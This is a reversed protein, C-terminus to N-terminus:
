PAKGTGEAADRAEVVQAIRRQTLECEWHDEGYTGKFIALARNLEGLAEDFRELRHLAGARGRRQYGIRWHDEPMATLAAEISAAWVQEAEHAKGARLLVSALNHNSALTNAHTPGFAARTGANEERIVPEAEDLRGTSLLLGGLVNMAFLRQMSSAPLREIADRLIPEAEDYRGLVQLADAHLVRASLTLEDGEGLAASALSAVEHAEKLVDEWQALDARVTARDLRAQLTSRASEGYLAAQQDVSRTQYDLAQELRGLNQYMVGIHGSLEARVYPRDHFQEEFTAAGRDVAEVVTLDHEGDGASKIMDILFDKVAMAQGRARAEDRRARDNQVLLVSVVVLGVVLGSLVTAGVATGVRHRRAFKRLLYSTSPPRAAIPEHRVFRMVDARLEAASQYRRGKEKELATSVITELDGRLSRDVEGLRRPPAEEIARAAAALSATDLDLPLRDTLLQFLVVGLAYVDTRVDVGGDGRVQEPSMYPLTGFVQGTGTGVTAARANPDNLHAVGFDLVKPDGRGDLLINSPKLDRHIVGRQHAHHVADCVKCFLELRQVLPPEHERAWEMLPRGDVFEMVLYPQSRPVGATESTVVGTEVVRAICPHDLVALAQGENRLRAVMESTPMASRLMKIAVRRSPNEQRAEVVVGMGGEGLLGVVRYGAIEEPLQSEEAAIVPSRGVHALADADLATNADDHELLEEVSARLGADGACAKDLYASREAGTLECAGFFVERVSEHSPENM